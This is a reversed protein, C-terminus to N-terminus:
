IYINTTWMVPGWLIIGSKDYACKLMLFWLAGKFAQLREIAQLLRKWDM